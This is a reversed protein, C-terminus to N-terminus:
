VGLVVKVLIVDAVNTEGLVLRYLGGAGDELVGLEIGVLIGWEGEGDNLERCDGDGDNLM